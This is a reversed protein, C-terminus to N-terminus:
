EKSNAAVMLAGALLGMDKLLGTMAMQRTAENAMGPLHLTLIFILLLLALLLGSLKTMKNIFFSISALVLGAGSVYVWLVGGPLWSPIMGAMGKAFAFHMIGFLLFPIGFIIRATSNLNKM